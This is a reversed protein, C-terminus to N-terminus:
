FVVLYKNAVSPICSLLMAKEEWGVVLILDGSGTVSGVLFKEM